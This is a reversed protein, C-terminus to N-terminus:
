SGDPVPRVVAGMMAAEDNGASGSDVTVISGRTGSGRSAGITAIGPALAVSGSAVAVEGSARGVRGPAVKRVGRSSGPPVPCPSMARGAAMTPDSVIRELWTRERWTRERWTRAGRPGCRARIIAPADIVPWPANAVGESSDHDSGPPRGRNAGGYGKSGPGPERRAKWGDDSSSRKAPARGGSVASGPSPGDLCDRNSVPEGAARGAMSGSRTALRVVGAVVPVPVTASWPREESGEPRSVARTVDRRRRGPVVCAAHTRVWGGRSSARGTRAAVPM